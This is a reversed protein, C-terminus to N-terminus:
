RRRRRMLMALGGLGLMVASGPEPVAGSTSSLVANDVYLGNTLGAVAGPNMSFRLLFSDATDPVDLDLLEFLQYGTNIGAGVLSVLTGGQFGGGDSGDQDLWQIDVFFDLGVLAAASDDDIRAYFSLNYNQLPDISGVGQIQEFAYLNPANSNDIQMYASFAGDFPDLNSQTSTGFPGAIQNWNDANGGAGLEFGGNLLVDASATQFLAFGLVLSLLSATVPKLKMM